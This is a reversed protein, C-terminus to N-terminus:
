AFWTVLAGVAIVFIDGVYVLAGVDDFVIVGFVRYTTGVPGVHLLPALLLNFAGLGILSLGVLQLVRSLYTRLRIGWIEGTIRLPERDM